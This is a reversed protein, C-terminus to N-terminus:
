CLVVQRVSRGDVSELVSQDNVAVVACMSPDAVANRAKVRGSSWLEGDATLLVMRWYGIM